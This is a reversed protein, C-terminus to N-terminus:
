PQWTLHVCSEPAAGEAGDSPLDSGHRAQRPGRLRRLLSLSNPPMGGARLITVLDHIQGHLDGCVRLPAEVQVLMPQSMLVDRTRHLLSLIVPETLTKGGTKWDSMISQIVHQFTENEQATEPDVEQVRDRKRRAM